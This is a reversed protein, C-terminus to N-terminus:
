LAALTMSEANTASDTTASHIYITRKSELSKELADIAALRQEQNEQHEHSNIMEKLEIHMSNWPETAWKCFYVENDIDSPKQLDLEILSCLKLIPFIILTIAFSTLTIAINIPLSLIVM